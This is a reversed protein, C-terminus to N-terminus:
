MWSWRPPEVGVSRLRRRRNRVGRSKTWWVAVGTWALLLPTLGFGFWVLRPLPGVLTGFHLGDYVDENWLRQTLPAGDQRPSWDQIGGGHSDVAVYAAGAFNWYRYPDFGDALRFGYTGGPNEPHQEALGIVRAGPHAALAQARAQPLSLLPGRGPVLPAPDAHAQGPTLAFYVQSPWDFYFAAGTVGWLLLFPAAIIGVVRHLDLDRAYPGRGRRVIFGSALTRLGPWWIIAGSVALFVTLVGLVGLLFSGVTVRAGFLTPLPVALWPLYGPMGRGSLGADHLNVLFGIPAPQEPGIANIRGTGPDVFADTFARGDPSGGRVLYIGQYQQVGFAGLEPHTARVMALADVDSLPHASATVQYHRPYLWRALDNGYLLIAGSTAEVVLLLGLTLSAWRHLRIWWRNIPGHTRRRRSASRRRRRPGPVSPKAGPTWPGPTLVESM